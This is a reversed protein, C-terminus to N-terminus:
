WRPYPSNSTMSTIYFIFVWSYVLLFSGCPNIHIKSWSIRFISSQFLNWSHMSINSPFDWTWYLYQLFYMDCGRLIPFVSLVAIILFNLIPIVLENFYWKSSHWFYLFEVSWVLIRVILWNNSAMDCFDAIDWRMLVLIRSLIRLKKIDSLIVNM